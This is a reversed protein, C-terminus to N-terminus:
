DNPALEASDDATPRGPPRGGVIPNGVTPFATSRGTSRPDWVSLLFERDTSRAPRGSCVSLVARAAPRGPRSVTPNEVTPFATSQVTSRPEWVSLTFERDTSRAPRGSCVSLVARAEPRGPRDVSTCVHANTCTPRGGPRGVAYNQEALPRGSPRGALPM